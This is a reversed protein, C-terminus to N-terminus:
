PWGSTRMGGAGSRPRRPGTGPNLGLSGVRGDRAWAPTVCGHIDPRFADSQELSVEVRRLEIGPYQGQLGGLGVALKMQKRGVAEDAVPDTLVIVLLDQLKAGVQALPGDGTQAELDPGQRAGLYQRGFAQRTRRRNSANPTGGGSTRRCFSERLPAPVAAQVRCKGEVGEDLERGVLDGPRGGHPDRTVGPHGVVRQEDVAPAPEALGVQHLGNAIGDEICIRLGPHGAQVGLAEDRLHDLGQLVVADVLELPVVARDVGQEDVIDLEERARIAGLLLEEVDEVGQELRALLDDEGAVAEWLFQGAQLLAQARAEAPPDNYGDLGPGPSGRPWGAPRRL